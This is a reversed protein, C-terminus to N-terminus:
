LKMDKYYNVLLAVVYSYSRIGEKQNNAKLYSNFTSKFVPEAPNQYKRWFMSVEIFNKLIGKHIKQNYTEFAVPDRRKIEGLCYRLM